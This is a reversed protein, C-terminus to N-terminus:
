NKLILLKYTKIELLKPPHKVIEKLALLTKSAKKEQTYGIFSNILVVSFIVVADTTEKIILSILGAILLIYILPSQFQGLFIRLRSFPKKQPLKNKGFEKQRFLVEKKSLGSETNTKLTKVVEKKSLQYWFIQSM